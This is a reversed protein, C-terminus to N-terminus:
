AHEIQSKNSIRLDLSRYELGAISWQIFISLIVNKRRVLTFNGPWMRLIRNVDSLCCIDVDFKEFRVLVLQGLPFVSVGCKFGM